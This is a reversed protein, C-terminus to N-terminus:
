VQLSMPDCSENKSVDKIGEDNNDDNDVKKWLKHMWQKFNVISYM